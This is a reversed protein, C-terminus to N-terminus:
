QQQELPLRLRRRHRVTLRLYHGYFIPLRRVPGRSGGVRLEKGPPESGPETSSAQQQPPLGGGDTPQNSSGQMERMSAVAIVEAGLILIFSFSYIWATLVILSFLVSGFRSAHSLRVYLPWVTTVLQFLIAALLSGLWVNRLKYGAEINPFVSYVTGFLLFASVFSIGTVIVVQAPAPFPLTSALKDLFAAATTGFLIVVMLGTFVFLMGVDLLKERIFPRPRTAFIVRFATAFSGGINSAGWLVGIVGVIGLLGSNHSLAKVATDIEQTSVAGQFLQSLRRVLDAQASKSQLFLSSIAVVGVTLPILSTLVNWSIFGALMGVNDKAVNQFFLRLTPHNDLIRQVRRVLHRTHAAVAREGM